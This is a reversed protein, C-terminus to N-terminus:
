KYAFGSNRIRELDKLVDQYCKQLKTNEELLKKQNEHLKNYSKENFETM